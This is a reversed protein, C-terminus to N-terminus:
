KDNNTKILKNTSNASDIADINKKNSNTNM